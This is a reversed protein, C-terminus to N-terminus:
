KEEKELVERFRRMWAKAAKTRAADKRWVMSLELTHAPTLRRFCLGTNDTNVLGELTLLYGMGEQVMLAGNYVLNYSGVIRLEELPKGLWRFFSPLRLSHRSLILPRDWLDETKLVEKEEFADGKQMLIGWRERYPLSLYDYKSQDIGGYLICFDFLGRDLRELLDDADGSTLHFRVEPHERQLGAAVQIVRRMSPSEGAGIYIDGAIRGDSLAMEAKTQWALRVMEEARKKFFLGDETLTIRRKGRIFLPKGLEEELDRLQRSLTPQTLHLSEAARTINQERAVALFYELVRFEM